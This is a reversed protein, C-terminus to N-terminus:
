GHVLRTQQAWPGGCEMHALDPTPRLPAYWVMSLPLFSKPSCKQVKAFQYSVRTCSVGLMLCLDILKYVEGFKM